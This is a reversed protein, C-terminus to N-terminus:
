GSIMLRDRSANSRYRATIREIWIDFQEDYVRIQEVEILAELADSDKM